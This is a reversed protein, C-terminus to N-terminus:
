KQRLTIKHTIPKNIQYISEVLGEMEQIRADRVSQHMLQAYNGRHGMVWGNKDKEADIAAVAKHDNANLLGKPQLFGFQMWAFDRFQREIEWRYENLFMVEMAQQYQPTNDLTALNIGQSLAASSWEGIKQDDIYLTYDGKLGKVSLMERNMEEIFPVVKAADAQTRVVGWGRSLTDLPYPLSEALYDFSLERRNGRINSIECNESRLATSKSADLQMDAVGKGVFGQAKLFLYAMVMHGDNGPHVRDGGSLTFTSDQRQERLTIETMPANFDLFEWNNKEASQRQFEVIRQMVANKGKFSTNEICATEDYPSSGLQVIRVQDLTQFRKEIKLYNEYCTQYRKEGFAKAGEQNYESYGTDNMGFTAILVSPRKNFVDDDLRKYLDAATDGGIGANMVQIDMYPFRTMYYLWIYSHYHGGDTISNGLFVAREGDKFPAVQQAYAGLFLSLLLASCLLIKKM